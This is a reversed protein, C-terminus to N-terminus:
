TYLTHQSTKCVNRNLLFVVGATAWMGGRVSVFMSEKKANGLSVTLLVSYAIVCFLLSLRPLYIHMHVVFVVVVVVAITRIGRFLFLRVHLYTSLCPYIFSSPRYFHSSIHPLNHPWIVSLHATYCTRTRISPPYSVSHIWICICPFLTGM